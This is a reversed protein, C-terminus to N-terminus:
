DEGNYKAKNNEDKNLQLLQQSVAEGHKQSPELWSTIEKSLAEMHNNSWLMLM